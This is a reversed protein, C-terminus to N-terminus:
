KAANKYNREWLRMFSGTVTPRDKSLKEFEGPRSGEVAYTIANQDLMWSSPEPLGASLYRLLRDLIVSDLLDHHAVLNGAMYRRWPPIGLLGQTEPARLVSQYTASLFPRPDRTMFLDADMAYVITYETLLQPLALFRACAYFTKHDGVEPPVDIIKIRLNSPVPQRNLKSLARLYEDADALTSDSEKKEACLIIVYDTDRLQQANFFIMPGYIRFFNSDVSIVIANSSVKKGLPSQISIDPLLEFRRQRQKVGTESFYTLAGSDWYFDSILSIHKNNRATEFANAASERSSLSHLQGIMPLWALGEASEAPPAISKLQKAIDEAARYDSRQLTHFGLSVAKSFVTLYGSLYKAHADSLQSLWPQCFKEFAQVTNKGPTKLQTEAMRYLLAALAKPYSKPLEEALALVEDIRIPPLNTGPGARLASITQHPTRSSNM